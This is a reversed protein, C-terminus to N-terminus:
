GPKRMWVYLNRSNHHQYVPRVLEKLMKKRDALAISGRRKLFAYRKVFGPRVINFGLKEALRILARRNFSNVHELPHVLMLEDLTGRCRGSRLAAVVGMARAANPVSVKLIGGPRLSAALLAATLALDRVHEMVQETNIFDFMPTGLDEAAIPVIGHDKAYAVREEALEQGYSACGLQRAIRAWLGWGMGFDLVTMKEPATGLFDAAVMIEHGDRSRLPASVDAQYQPDAEPLNFDNIWKGYLEGLLRDDGAFRQYILSCQPCRMLEFPAAALEVPDVPYYSAIFRGIAGEDFGNRYVSAAAKSGCLPCNAREVFGYRTRRADHSASPAPQSQPVAPYQYVFSVFPLYSKSSAEARGV